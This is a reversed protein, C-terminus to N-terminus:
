SFCLIEYVYVCVMHQFLPSLNLTMLYLDLSVLKLQSLALFFSFKELISAGVTKPPTLSRSEEPHYTVKKLGGLKQGKTIAYM